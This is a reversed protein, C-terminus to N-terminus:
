AVVVRFGFKVVFFGFKRTGGLDDFLSLTSKLLILLSVALLLWVYQDPPVSGVYPIVVDNGALMASLSIGLLMLAAIDLLSLLCSVVIYIWIYRKTGSPLYPALRKIQQLAVKM